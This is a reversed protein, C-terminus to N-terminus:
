PWPESERAKWRGGNSQRNFTLYWPSGRSGRYDYTTPPHTSSREQGAHQVEKFNHQDNREFHIPLLVGNATRLWERFIVSSEQRCLYQIITLTTEPLQFFVLFIKPILGKAANRSAIESFIFLRPIPRAISRWLRQLLLPRNRQYFILCAKCPRQAPRPPANTNRTLPPYGLLLFRRLDGGIAEQQTLRGSPSAPQKRQSEDM